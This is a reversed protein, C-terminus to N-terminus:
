AMIFSVVSSLQCPVPKDFVTGWSRHQMTGRNAEVYRRIRVPVAIM